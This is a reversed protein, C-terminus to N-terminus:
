FTGSNGAVQGGQFTSIAPDGADLEWTKGALAGSYVQQVEQTSVITQSVLTLGGSVHLDINDRVVVPADFTITATDSDGDVVTDVVQRPTSQGRGLKRRNRRHVKAGPYSAM